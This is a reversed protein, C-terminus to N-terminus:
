AIQLDSVRKVTAWQMLNWFEDESMHEAYEAATKRQTDSVSSEGDFTESVHGLAIHALEYRLYAKQSCKPQLSNIFVAVCNKRGVIWGGVNNRISEPFECYILDFKKM